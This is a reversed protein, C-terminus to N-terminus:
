TGPLVLRLGQPGFMGPRRLLHYRLHTSTSRHTDFVTAYKNRPGALPGRRVNTKRGSGRGVLIWDVHRELGPCCGHHGGGKLCFFERGASFFCFEDGLWRSWSSVPRAILIPYFGSPDRNGKRRHLSHLLMCAADYASSRLWDVHATRKAVDFPLQPAEHRRRGSEHSPTSEGQDDVPGAMARWAVLEGALTLWPLSCLLISQTAHTHDLSQPRTKWVAM